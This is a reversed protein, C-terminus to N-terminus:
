KNFLKNEVVFRNEDKFFYLDRKNDLFFLALVIFLSLQSQNGLGNPSVFSVLLYVFVFGYYLLNIKNKRERYKVIYFVPLLLLLLGLVVGVESIRAFYSNEYHKGRLENSGARSVLTFGVGEGITVRKFTTNVFCYDYGAKWTETRDDDKITESTYRTEFGENDMLFRQAYPLLLIIFLVAVGVKFFGFSNSRIITYLGIVEFIALAALTQRAGSFVSGFIIIATIVLLM